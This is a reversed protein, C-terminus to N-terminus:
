SNEYGDWGQGRFYTRGKPIHIGNFYSRTNPFMSDNGIYTAFEPFLALNAQLYRSMRETYFQATSTANDRLYYLEPLEAATSNDSNQKSISKQRFKFNMYPISEVICYQALTPIIYQEVLIQYNGTLTNANIDALLKNYLNTGIADQIYKYQAMRIIPQLVQADVNDNIITNDRLYQVGVFLDLPAGPM